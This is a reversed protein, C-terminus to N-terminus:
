LELYSFFSRLASLKRAISSPAYGERNMWGLWARVHGRELQRWSSVVGEERCWVIFDALDLGYSHVTNTAARRALQDLFRRVADAMPSLSVAQAGSVDATGNTM